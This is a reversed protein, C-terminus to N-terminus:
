LRRRDQVEGRDDAAWQAVGVALPKAPDVVQDYPEAAAAVRRDGAEQHVDGPALRKQAGLPDRLDAGAANDHM